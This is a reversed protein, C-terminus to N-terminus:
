ALQKDQLKLNKKPEPYGLVNGEIDVWQFGVCEGNRFLKVMVSKFEPKDVKIELYTNIQTAPVIEVRYYSIGREFIAQHSLKLNEKPKLYGDIIDIKTIQGNREKEFGVYVKYLSSFDDNLSPTQLNPQMNKKNKM